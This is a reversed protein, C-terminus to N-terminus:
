PLMLSEGDAGYVWPFWFGSSQCALARPGVCPLGAALPPGVLGKAAARGDGLLYSKFCM